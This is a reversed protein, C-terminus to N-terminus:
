AIHVGESAGELDDVTTDMNSLEDLEFLEVCRHLSAAATPM